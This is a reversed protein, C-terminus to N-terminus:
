KNIGTTDHKGRYVQSSYGKGIGDALAYSYEEIKKRAANNM